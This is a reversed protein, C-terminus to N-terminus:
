VGPGNDPNRGAGVLVLGDTDYRPMYRFRLSRGNLDFEDEVVEGGLSRRAANVVPHSEDDGWFDEVSKGVLRDEEMGLDALGEGSVSVYRLDRGVLTCVPRGLGLMEAVSGSPLRTATGVTGVLRGRSLRPSVTVYWEEGRLRYHGARAHGELAAEHLAVVDEARDYEAMAEHVTRGVFKAVVSPRGAVHDGTMQLYRLKVDTTWVAEPRHGTQSVWKKRWRRLWRAAGPHHTDCRDCRGLFLDVSDHIFHRLSQDDPIHKDPLHLFADLAMLQDDASIGQSQILSSLLAIARQKKTM